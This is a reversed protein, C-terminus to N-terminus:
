NNFLYVMLVTVMAIGTFKDAAGCTYQVYTEGDSDCGSTQTTTSSPDGSCATNSYTSVTITEGECEIDMSEGDDVVCGIAIAFSTFNGSAECKDSSGDYSTIIVVPCNEGNCTVNGIDTTTNIAKGSCDASSYQYGTPTDGCEFKFSSTEGGRSSGFCQDPPLALGGLFPVGNCVGVAVDISQTIAFLAIIKNFM